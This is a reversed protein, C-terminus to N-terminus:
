ISFLANLSREFISYRHFHEFVVMVDVEVVSWCKQFFAMTFGDPRPAKDGKMEMLVQTVEEKSFERGLSM